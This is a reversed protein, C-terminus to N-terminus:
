PGIGKDTAGIPTFNPLKFVPAKRQASHQRYNPQDSDVAMAQVLMVM